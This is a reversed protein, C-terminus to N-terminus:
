DLEHKAYIDPYQRKFTLYHRRKGHLFSLHTMLVPIFKILVSHINIVYEHIM